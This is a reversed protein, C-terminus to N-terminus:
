KNKDKKIKVFFREFLSEKIGRPRLFQACAQELPLVRVGRPRGLLTPMGTM